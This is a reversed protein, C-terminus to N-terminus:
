IDRAIADMLALCGQWAQYLALASCFALLIGVMIAYPGKIRHEEPLVKKSTALYFIFSVVLPMILGDVLQVLINLKVIGIIDSYVVLIGIGVTSMFFWRFTPSSTADEASVVNGRVETLNWAVGLSIVMAALLSSGLLGLGVCIESAEGLLPRIAPLFVDKIAKQEIHEGPMMVAFTVLVCCMILQTLTSGVLTDMREHHLDEEKLGKVVISSGQFFLMWPTVVTGINAWVLQSPVPNTQGSPILQLGLYSWSPKCLFFTVVFILLCGGLIMGIKEIKHYNGLLVIAVLILAAIFCGTKDDVGFIEGAASFSAFESIMSVIGEFAMAAMFIRTPWVGTQEQVQKLLGKGQCITVRVVMEQVIYLVPILILQMSLLAYRTETGDVAMMFLGGPDSDALCVVLGPGLVKLFQALQVSRNKSTQQQEEKGEINLLPAEMDNM